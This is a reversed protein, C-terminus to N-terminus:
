KDDFNESLAYSVVPLALGVSSLFFEFFFILNTLSSLVLDYNVTHIRCKVSLQHSSCIAEDDEEDVYTEDISQSVDIM